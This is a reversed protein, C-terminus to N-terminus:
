KFHENLLVFALISSIRFFEHHVKKEGAPVSSYSWPGASRMRTRNAKACAATGTELNVVMVMLRM